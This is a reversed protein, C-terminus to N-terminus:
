KQFTQFARFIIIFIFAFARVYIAILWFYTYMQVFDFYKYM